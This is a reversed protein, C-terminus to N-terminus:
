SRRNLENMAQEFGIAPLRLLTEAARDVAAALLEAEDGEPLALVHDVVSESTGPHGIGVYLRPYDDSGLAHSVSKLGNHSAAGGRRKMRTAGVPLDLNDTVVLLREPPVKAREMVVPLVDGSRNMYTLPEVVDLTAPALRAYRYRGLLGFLHPRRM